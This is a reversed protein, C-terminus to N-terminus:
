GNCQVCRNSCKSVSVSLINTDEWFKYTWSKLEWHSLIHLRPRWSTILNLHPYSPLARLIPNTDKCSSSSIDCSGGEERHLYPLFATMQLSVFILRGEGQYQIKWRGFSHSINTSETVWGTINELLLGLSRFGKALMYHLDGSEGFELATRIISSSDCPTGTLISFAVNKSFM